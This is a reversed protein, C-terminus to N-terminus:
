IYLKEKVNFSQGKLNYKLFKYLIYNEKDTEHTSLIIQKNPFDNRLVEIFSAINIDDMTQVPDDILIFGIDDNEPFIYQKNMAFLFSLIFGSLQGSSFTNLIDHKADSNSVFRMEDKNIFVGLGNQYDQLIKGTYILLPIRLKKLIMNKYDDICSEYIKKLDDFQNRLYNLKKWKVILDSIEDKIVKYEANQALMFQSEIYAIKNNVENNDLLKNQDLKLIEKNNNYLQVFDSNLLNEEFNPNKYQQVSEELIGKIEISQMMPDLSQWSSNENIIGKIKLLIKIENESKIVQEFNRTDNQTKSISDSTIGKTFSEVLEIDAKLLRHLKEELTKLTVEDDNKSKELEASLSAYAEELIESNHYDYNCYPCKTTTEDNKTLEHLNVRASAIKEKKLQIYSLNKKTNKIQSMLEDIEDVSFNFDIGEIEHLKIMNEKNYSNLTLKTRLFESYKFVSNKRKITDIFTNLAFTNLKDSDIFNYLNIFNNISKSNKTISKIEENEIFLNYDSLNQYLLAMSRIEKIYLDKLQKSLSETDINEIDWKKIELNNPYLFLRNYKSEGTPRMNSIKSLQKIKAAIKEDMIKIEDNLIVNPTKTNKGLVENNLTDIKSQISDVQLLKTISSKRDAINKKLFMVSEAQSIYYYVNFHEKIYKLKKFDDIEEKWDNIDNIINSFNDINICNEFIAFKISPEINIKKHKNDIRAIISISESKDNVLILVLYGYENSSNLLINQILNTNKNEIQSQLRTINKTFILEIADFFTTKGFGNPGSIIIPNARTDFNFKYFQKNDFCKFNKIFLTEIKYSM